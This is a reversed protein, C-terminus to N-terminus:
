CTGSQAQFYVLVSLCTRLSSLTDVVLPVLGKIAYVDQLPVRLNLHYFRTKFDDVNLM